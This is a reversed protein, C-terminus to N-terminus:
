RGLIEWTQMRSYIDYKVKSLDYLVKVAEKEPDSLNYDEKQLSGEQRFSIADLIGDTLSIGTLISYEWTEGNIIDFQISFGYNKSSKRSESIDEGSKLFVTDYHFSQSYKFGAALCFDNLDIFPYAQCDEGFEKLVPSTIRFDGTFTDVDYVVSKMLDKARIIMERVEAATNADIGSEGSDIDHIMSDFDYRDNWEMYKKYIMSRRDTEDIPTVEEPRNKLEINIRTRLDKLEQTSMQSLDVSEAYASTCSFALVVLLLLAIFKRAM